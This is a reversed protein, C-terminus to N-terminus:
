VFAATFSFDLSISIMISNIFVSNSLHNYVIKYLIFGEIVKNNISENSYQKKPM